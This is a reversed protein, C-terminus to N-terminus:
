GMEVASAARAAVFIRNELGTLRAVAFMAHLGLRTVPSLTLRALDTLERRLEVVRPRRARAGASCRPRRSTSSTSSSTSSRSRGPSAGAARATSRARSWTSSAASTRRRSASSAAPRSVVRAHSSCGWRTARTSSSTGARSRTSVTDRPRSIASTAAWTSGSTSARTRTAEASDDIGLPQWGRRRAVALFLGTGCGIDLLRGPRACASSRM